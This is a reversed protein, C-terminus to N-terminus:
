GILFQGNEYILTGDATIRGDTQMDTILDWHVSSQNKGGCQYYSQGLAMHVTGGTKEDFLINNTFRQIQYNTGIAVEGFRKAGPITFLRDLFAKGKKADWHVVEGDKVELELGEVEQGQYITPVTFRIKGNGSDEVPATFVEGSPMNSRGDSNIWKRGAVKFTIDVQPSQYRIAKVKDLYDVLGQQRQRVELWKEESDDEFLYCANFVFYEYEPLSMRAHAAGAATPYECLCRKMEGSGTRRMYTEKIARGAEQSLKMKAPDANQLEYKDFPARIALYADFNEFVHKRLPSVHELQHKRAHELYIASLNRMSIDFEVHAGAKLAEEYFCQLLPEATYTSKVYVQEGKQLELCYGALLKAYKKLVINEM